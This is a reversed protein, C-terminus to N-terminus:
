DASEGKIRAAAAASPYRGMAGLAERELLRDGANMKLLQATAEGIETLPRIVTGELSFHDCWRDTRPHFLRCLQGTRTSISAIDTGKFRNCFLCALALNEATTAGGHKESIIHEIECGFYTDVEHVLCYECLGAARESVLKRLAAPVYSSM